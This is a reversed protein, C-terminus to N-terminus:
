YKDSVLSNLYVELNTYGSATVKKGDAADNPNLGHAKEWADPIGDGDTDIPAPTSKYEPYGGVDKVWNIIGDGYTPKGTRTEEIVRKEPADRNAPFAGVYDLVLAYADPASQTKVPSTPFPKLARNKELTVGPDLDVGGNWNDASIAPYGDIYNGDIYWIGYFGYKEANDILAVRRKVQPITAPGPKYYNNVMNITMPKGDCTRTGYNFIVNNRFDLNITHLDGNGGISPNRGKGSVFLNHHYSSNEGGLSASFGHEGKSHMAENLPEHILTWQVTVNRNGKWSNLAEDGTWGITCHDIIVNQSNSVEIGDINSGELGSDTGPRIRLYRVIVDHTGKIDLPYNKLCIGDGPATQGAITIFPNSVVLFTKLEIIGSVKFIVTRPGQAEIAARLSGPGNDSLNTVAIVEGGRGGPTHAGYGEATPFSLQRQASAPLIGLLLLVPLFLIVRKM